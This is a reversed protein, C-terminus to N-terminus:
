AHSRVEAIFKDLAEKIRDKSEARKQVKWRSVIHDRISELDPLHSFGLKLTRELIERLNTVQLNLDSNRAHLQSIEKDLQSRQSLLQDLEAKLVEIKEYVHSSPLSDEIKKDHTHNSMSNGNKFHEVLADIADSANGTGKLWQVTEPMITFNHRVKGQRRSEAGLKLNELSRESVRREKETM